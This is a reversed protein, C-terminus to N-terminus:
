LKQELCIRSFLLEIKIFNRSLQRHHSLVLLDLPSCDQQRVHDDPVAKDAQILYRVPKPRATQPLAGCQRILIRWHRVNLCRHGIVLNGLEFLHLFLQAIVIIPWTIFCNLLNELINILKSPGWIVPVLAGWRSNFYGCPHRLLRGDLLYLQRLRLDSIGGLLWNWFPDWNALDIFYLRLDLLLDGCGLLYESLCLVLVIELSLVEIWVLWAGWWLCFLLICALCIQDLLYNIAAEFQLFLWAQLSLLVEVLCLWRLNVCVDLLSRQWLRRLFSLLHNVQQWFPTWFVGLLGCKDEVQILSENM